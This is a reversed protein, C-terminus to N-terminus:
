AYEKGTEALSKMLAARGRFIDSKVKPVSVNLQVAIDAYAVDDFHFMVLPVRQHEPLARLAAEVLEHREDDEIEALLTDPVAFEPGLLAEESEDDSDERRWDGLFSLRKRYRTLHNLSMNTAVTKLWGPTTPNNQLEEFREYAKLFVNQSIDEAQADDGLLRAATSFVMDQYNRMFSAFDSAQKVGPAQM